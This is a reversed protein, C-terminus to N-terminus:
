FRVEYWVEELLDLQEPAETWDQLDEEWSSAALDEEAQQRDGQSDSVAQPRAPRRRYVWSRHAAAKLTYSPGRTLFLNRVSLLQSSQCLM